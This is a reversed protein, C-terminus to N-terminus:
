NLIIKFPDLVIISIGRTGGKGGRVKVSTIIVFWDCPVTGRKESRKEMRARSFSDRHRILKDGKGRLM